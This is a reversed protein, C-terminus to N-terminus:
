RASLSVPGVCRWERVDDLPDIAAGNSTGSTVSWHAADEPLIPTISQSGQSQMGHLAASRRLGIRIVLLGDGEAEFRMGSGCLSLFLLCHTKV